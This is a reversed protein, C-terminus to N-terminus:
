PRPNKNKVDCITGCGTCRFWCKKGICACSEEPIFEIRGCETKVPASCCRSILEIREDSQTEQTDM